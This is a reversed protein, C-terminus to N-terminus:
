AAEYLGFIRIEDSAAWAWPVSASVSVSQNNIEIYAQSSSAGIAAAGAGRTGTSADIILATGFVVPTSPSVAAIPLSVSYVGGGPSSGSTGFKISAQYLVLKGVRLYKGYVVSGTGLTPNGGAGTLVPTYTNWASSLALMIDNLNQLKTATPVEGASFAPITGNWVPM